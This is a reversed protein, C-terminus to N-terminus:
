AMTLRFWLCSRCDGMFYRWAKVTYEGIGIDGKVYNTARWKHTRNIYNQTEQAKADATATAANVKQISIGEGIDGPLQEVTGETIITNDTIAVNDTINNQNNQNVVGFLGSVLLYLGVLVLILSFFNGLVSLGKKLSLQYADLEIQQAM